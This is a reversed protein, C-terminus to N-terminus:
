APESNESTLRRRLWAKALRLERRVTPESIGLSEATEEPSMGGFFRMELIRVKREDLAALQELGEELAILDEPSQSIGPQNQDFTIKEGGGGRKAALHARAYDTLILRMLHAAVGFFHSRNEWQVNKQGALRLYAEHILATAQLTHGPRERRLYSDALRRLEDYVVPVLTQLATDDGGNWWRLMATIDYSTDM